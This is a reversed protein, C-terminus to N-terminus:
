RINKEGGKGGRHLVKEEEKPHISFNLVVFGELRMLDAASGLVESSRLIQLCILLGGRSSRSAPVSNWIDMIVPLSPLSPCVCQSCLVTTFHIHQQGNASHLVAYSFHGEDWLTVHQESTQTCWGGSKQPNAVKFRVTLMLNDSDSPLFSAFIHKARLGPAPEDAAARSALQKRCFHLARPSAIWSRDVKSIHLQSATIFWCKWRPPSPHIMWWPHWCPGPHPNFPLLHRSREASESLLKHLQQNEAAPDRRTSSAFSLRLCCLGKPHFGGQRM